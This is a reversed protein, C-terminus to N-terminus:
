LGYINTIYKRSTYYLTEKQVLVCTEKWKSAIKWIRNSVHNIYATHHVSLAEAGSGRSLLLLGFKILNELFHDYHVTPRLKIGVEDFSFERYINEEPSSLYNRYTVNSKSQLYFM